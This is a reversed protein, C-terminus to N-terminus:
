PTGLRKRLWAEIELRHDTEAAGDSLLRDRAQEALAIARVPDSPEVARALAFETEARDITTEDDLEHIAMAEELLDRATEEQRELQVWAVRTLMRAETATGPAGRRAWVLAEAYADGAASWAGSRVEHDGLRAYTDAIATAHGSQLTAEVSERLHARAEEGRGVRGLCWALDARVSVTAPSGDGVQPRLIELAAEFDPLARECAGTAAHQTAIAALLVAYRPSEHGLTAAGERRAQEYLPRAEDYRGLHGLATALSWRYQSIFPHEAPLARTAGELALAFATAAQEHRGATVHITAEVFDTTHGLRDALDHEAIIRRAQDLNHTARPHAAPDAAEVAALAVLGEARLDARGIAEATGIAQLLVDTADEKRASPSLVKGVLLEAEALRELNGDRRAQAAVERAAAAADDDRGQLRLARAAELAPDPDNRVFGAASRSTGPEDQPQARAVVLAALGVAVSGIFWARASRPPRPALVDVLAQMDAFRDSAQQAAGRRVAQRVRRPVSGRNCRAPLDADPRRDWLAECLSVCFAYQDARADVPAGARQEPAMYGRTGARGPRDGTSTALGFDAVRVRGDDDVLINDPKFDLHVLGV